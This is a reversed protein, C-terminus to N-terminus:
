QAQVKRLHDEYMPAFIEECFYRMPVGLSRCQNLFYFSITPDAYVNFGCYEQLIQLEKHNLLLVLFQLLNRM